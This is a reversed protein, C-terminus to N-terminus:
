LKLHKQKAKLYEEISFTFCKEFTDKEIKKLEGIRMIPIKNIDEALVVGIRKNSNSYQKCYGIIYYKKNKVLENFNIYKELTKRYINIHDCLTIAQVGKIYPRITTFTVHKKWVKKFTGILIVPENRPECLKVRMYNKLWRNEIDVGKKINGTKILQGKIFRYFGNNYNEEEQNILERLNKGFRTLNSINTSKLAFTFITKACVQKRIGDWLINNGRSLKSILQSLREFKFSFQFNEIQIMLIKLQKSDDYVVKISDDGVKDIGKLINILHLRFEYNLKANNQKVYTNILNVSACGLFIDAINLYEIYNLINLAIVVDIDRINEYAEIHQKSIAIIQIKNIEESFSM